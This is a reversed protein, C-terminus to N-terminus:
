IAIPINRIRKVTSDTETATFMRRLPLIHRESLGVELGRLHTNIKSSTESVIVKM